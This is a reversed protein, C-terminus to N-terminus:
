CSFYFSNIFRPFFFYAYYARLQKEEDQVAETIEAIIGHVLRGGVEVLTQGLYDFYVAIKKQETLPVNIIAQILL